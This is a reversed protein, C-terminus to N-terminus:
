SAARRAAVSDPLLPRVVWWVNDAVIEQGRATPHIGDAQNLSDVGGVGQLLFPILLLARRRALDRFLGRFQAAYRPGLNPPVEMGALVITITTDYGRVKALIAELNARTSDLDLGRLGDNAGTEVVVIRIPGQLLWDLRRLAGASTEGSLGANVARWRLGLSDIKRQVIAPYAQDPELGYGATLSTGLFLVVPLQDSGVSQARQAASGQGGSEGRSCAAATLLLWLAGTIKKRM